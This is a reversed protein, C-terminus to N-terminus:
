TKLQAKLANITARCLEGREVNRSKWGHAIALGILGNIEDNLVDIYKEHAQALEKYLKVEAELPEATLSQIREIAVNLLNANPDRLWSCLSLQFYRIEKFREERTM